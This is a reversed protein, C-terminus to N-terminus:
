LQVGSDGSRAVFFFDLTLECLWYCFVSQQLNSKSRWMNSYNFM